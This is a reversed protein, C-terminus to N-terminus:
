LKEYFSLRVSRLSAKPIKKVTWWGVSAAVWRSKDRHARLGTSWQSCPATGRAIKDSYSLFVVPRRFLPFGHWQWHSYSKVLRYLQFSTVNLPAKCWIYGTKCMSFSLPLLTVRLVFFVGCIFNMAHVTSCEILDSFFLNQINIVEFYTPTRMIAKSTTGIAINQNIDQQFQKYTSKHLWLRWYVVSSFM